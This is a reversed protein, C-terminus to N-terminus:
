EGHRAKERNEMYQRLVQNMLVQYRGGCSKFWVLVDQDVRITIPKKPGHDVVKARDWFDSGLEPIDSYDIDEDRMADLRAWNSKSVIEGPNERNHHVLKDAQRTKM